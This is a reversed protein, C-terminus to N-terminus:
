VFFKVIHLFVSNSIAKFINIKCFQSLTFHNLIQLCHFLMCISLAAFKNLKYFIVKYCFILLMAFKMLAAKYLTKVYSVGGPTTFYMSICLASPFGGHFFLFFYNINQINTNGKAPLVVWCFTNSSVM